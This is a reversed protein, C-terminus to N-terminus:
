GKMFNAAPDSLCLIALHPLSSPCGGGGRGEGPYKIGGRLQNNMSPQHSHLHKNLLCFNSPNCTTEYKCNYKFFREMIHVRKMRFLTICKISIIIILILQNRRPVVLGNKFEAGNWNGHFEALIANNEVDVVVSADLSPQRM